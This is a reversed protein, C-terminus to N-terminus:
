GPRDICRCMHYTSTDYSGIHKFVADGILAGLGPALTKPIVIVGRPHLTERSEVSM